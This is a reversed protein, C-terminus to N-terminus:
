IFVILNIKKEVDDDKKNIKKYLGIIKRDLYFFLQYKKM